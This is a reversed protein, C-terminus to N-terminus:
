PRRSGGTIVLGLGVLALVGGIWPSVPKQEDMSVHVDGMDLMNHRTTYHLGRAIIIGGALILAAGILLRIRM